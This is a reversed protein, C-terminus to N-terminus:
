WLDIRAVINCATVLKETTFLMELMMQFIKLTINIEIAPNLETCFQNSKGFLFLWFVSRYAVLPKNLPLDKTSCIWVWSGRSLSQFISPVLHLLTPQLTAHRRVTFQQGIFYNQSTAPSPLLSPILYEDSRRITLESVAVVWVWERDPEIM